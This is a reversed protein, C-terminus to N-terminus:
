FWSFLFTESLVYYTFIINSISISYFLTFIFSLKISTIKKLIKFLLLISLIWTFYQIVLLTSVIVEDNEFFLNPIGFYLSVGVPRCFHFEGNRYLQKGAEFYAQSDGLLHSMNNFNEFHGFLFGVAFYVATSFLTILIYQKM